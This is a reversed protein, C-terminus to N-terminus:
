CMVLSPKTESLSVSEDSSKMKSYTIREFVSTDNCFKDSFTTFQYIILIIDLANITIWATNYGIKSYTAFGKFPKGSSAWYCGLLMFLSCMGIKFLLSFQFIFNIEKATARPGSSVNNLGYFIYVTRERARLFTTSGTSYIFPVSEPGFFRQQARLIYLRYARPGSSVNNLGYFIYVTRERARLFTTSGTSYIFPVSEPGFFRQQARLIYLRYARPGSSVNNLGYFIYVTRERARLFTTSGTSYIFPVSEPGFFRQQARLIYLRYARPGSSVNNLGYFIYVTRERARLFTTSGTSYIFPVSEPGFFRQQARLIYLRYARPGSSVNNLGYFIYVTRERARLFTTSGTSYIFPVSEPGFFRQQARLIYLRYARPGSSVNNLGYFIYVTRERARLFTTSGTSYIFPVSEPGFFRQQARLIYLRYARPGSSVNNLGYFIYVTRERARLFTTSGTSYIFPVSEPGFFRQQARLIYLRYARPGSSVNNLGYFIYVTRERARLFTTSGTSYIFPVSEPGFFRQQARLIYLRYARPGSSVNNLGYFIYVTRERARLFTTSGTSYIFPVSEPGFFRQQARLIYLRYARPGSSVNNLGYFIYVTRERARLFTTSGTSYIFPVSEPGFFRQQARLIYLRYARPGSSVNNLGYFIYVTRERARLFTTSGTSYIFPVSEPGFFRQQARLIYLRYARPGSSVNDM